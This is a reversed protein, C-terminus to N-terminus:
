NTRAGAKERATIPWSVPSRIKRRRTTCRFALGLMKEDIRPMDTLAAYLFEDGYAEHNENCTEDLIKGSSTEMKILM